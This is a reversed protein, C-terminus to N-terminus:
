RWGLAEQWFSRGKKAGLETEVKWAKGNSWFSIAGHLDNRYVPVGREQWYRIVEPAPHDFTNREGVQIVAAQPEIVDLFNEYLGYKSGHHPVLFIDCDLQNGHNKYIVEMAEMEIDGTLLISTQGYSLRLVLSNNNLDSRTGTLPTDPALVQIEVRPDLRLQDGMRAVSTSIQKKSLFSFFDSYAELFFEPPPTVVLGVPIKEVVAYLGLLHDGHPHTNIVMDLRGVGQRVLYPIIIRAGPDFQSHGEAGGGDVLATRGAPTRIFIASGQGVDLFVIKLLDKQSYGRILPLAGLLCVILILSALKIWSSKKDINGIHKKEGLWYEKFLILAAFFLVIELLSPTRVQFVVGPLYSIIEVAWITFSIVAGSALAMLGALPLFFLSFLFMVLGMIVVLGVLPVILPNAVLAGPSVINFYYATVPLLSLQAALPVILYKRWSPLFSLIDDLLPYLYVLGWTAIFSLQFGSDFVTQPNFLLIILAAVGLATYFDRDRDWFYAILGMSAMLSARVVSPTFDSVAAYFLLVPLGVFLLKEKPVKFIRTIEFLFLLLFAVHLGSVSFVHFLGLDRFVQVQRDDLQEQDGFLVALLIGGAKPPLNNEIVETSRTKAALAAWILPNPPRYDIKTVDAPDFVQIRTYIDRRALFERYSFEGPNRHGSPLQLQGFVELVDGYRYRPFSVSSGGFRRYSLVLEVKEDVQWHGEGQKINKVRLVYVARNSYFKPSQVVTGTLTLHTHLHNKLGSRPELQSLQGWILGLVLIALALVWRGWPRKFYWALGALLLFTFSLFLAIGIMPNILQGIVLGSIFVLIIIFLPRALRVVETHWFNGATKLLCGSDRKTLFSVLVLQNNCPYFIQTYKDPKPM